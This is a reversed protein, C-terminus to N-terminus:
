GAYHLWRPYRLLMRVGDDIKVSAGGKYVYLDYFGNNENRNCIYAAVDDYPIVYSAVGDAIKVVEGNAYLMLSGLGNEEDYDSICFVAGSDKYCSVSSEDAGDCFYGGNVHLEERNDGANYVPIGGSVLYMYYVNADFLEAEGSNGEAISIRYLDYSDESNFEYGDMFFITNGNRDMLFNSPKEVHSIAKVDNEVAIYTIVNRSAENYILQQVNTYATIESLKPKVYAATDNGKYVMLPREFSDAYAGNGGREECFFSDCLLTKETGDYYYLESGFDLNLIEKAYPREMWAREEDRKLKLMYEAYAAEYDKYEEFNGSVPMAMAEDAEKMDDEIYDEWQLNGADNYKFYYIEGNKYDAMVIRVDNDIKEVNKFDSFKYLDGDKCFYVMSLDENACYIYDIKDAVKVRESNFQYYLADDPFETKNAHIILGDPAAYVVKNGTQNFYYGTASINMTILEPIEDASKRYLSNDKTYYYVTNGVASLDYYMVGASLEEVESDPAGVDKRCLTFYRTQADYNRPFYVTKGDNSVKVNHGMNVNLAQSYEAETMDEAFINDTLLVPKGDSLCVFYLERDKIYVTYNDFDEAPEASLADDIWHSRLMVFVLLATLLLMGAVILARHPKSVRMDLNESNGDNRATNGNFEIM